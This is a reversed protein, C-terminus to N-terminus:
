ASFESDGEVCGAAQVRGWDSESSACPSRIGSVCGIAERDALRGGFFVLGGYCLNALTTVLGIEWASWEWETSLRITAFMLALISGVSILANSLQLLFLPPPSVPAVREAEAHPRLPTGRIGHPSEVGATRPGPDSLGVQAHWLAVVEAM